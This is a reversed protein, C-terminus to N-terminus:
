ATRRAVVIEAHDIVPETSVSCNGLRQFAKSIRGVPPHTHGIKIGFVRNSTYTIRRTLSRRTDWEENTQRTFVIGGPKVARLLERAFSFDNMCYCWAVNSFVADYPGRAVENIADIYGTVYKANFGAGSMAREAMRLYNASIDLCTVDAGRRAFELAYHGPGSGVDIVSRGLLGQVAEEFKDVVAPDVHAVKQYSAAYEPSIPDWGHAPDHFLSHIRNFM